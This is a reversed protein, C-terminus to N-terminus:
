NKNKKLEIAAKVWAPAGAMSSDPNAGKFNFTTVVAETINDNKSTDNLDFKVKKRFCIVSLKEEIEEVTYNAKNAIVDAKDEDALMSFKAIMADKSADEIQAKFQVLENHAVKMTEYEATLANHEEELATYKEVLANHEQELANFKLEFENVVPEEVVPAEVIPEPETPEEIVPADVVVPEDTPQAPEEVVPEVSPEQVSEEVVAPTEVVPEEVVSTDVTNEEMSQGGELAFKLDQMMSYLSQAFDKESNKAFSASVNPKTVSSGEFCPEVDSGLICLKSFTADNIIFFDMGKTNTGWHGQLTEGDLEMSHPKGEGEIVQRCEEYVGTWLYGNTMLYEREIEEGFENTDIFTQFWVKADPAVFGCPVTMCNFHIGEDDITVVEGHDAFDGKEEKYWAVIPCGRLTKSMKTAVKKDIYTGNRNGGLYLVKIECSSIMPSIDLPQLNIFEPSNITQVSKNM